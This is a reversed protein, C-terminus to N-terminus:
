QQVPPRYSAAVKEVAEKGAPPAKLYDRITQALRKDAVLAVPLDPFLLLWPEFGFAKAIKQLTRLTMSHSGERAHALTRLSFGKPLRYIQEGDATALAVLETINRAALATLPDPESM